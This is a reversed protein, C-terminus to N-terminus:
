ACEAGRSVLVACPAEILVRKCVSGLGNRGPGIVILRARLQQAKRILWLAPQGLAIFTEVHLGENMGGLRTRYFVEEYNKLASAVAAQFAEASASEPLCEVGILYLKAKSALALERAMRLAREADPGGDYGILIKGFPKHGSPDKM